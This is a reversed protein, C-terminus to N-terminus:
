FTDKAIPDNLNCIQLKQSSVKQFDIAATQTSQVVYHLIM